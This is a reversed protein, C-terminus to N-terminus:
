ATEANSGGVAMDEPTAIGQSCRCNPEDGPEIEDGSDDFGPPVIFPENIGVVQGNLAIHKPREFGDDEGIWVRQEDQPLFGLEQAQRWTEVQGANAARAGETRAILEAREILLETGRAIIASTSEGAERMDNLVGLQDSRLGILQQIEKALLAPSEGSEIADSVMEAIAERTSADIETVLKAANAEAWDIVRQNKIDFRMSLAAGRSELNLAAGVLRKFLGPKSARVVAAGASEMTAAYAAPMQLRIHESATEYAKNVLQAAGSKDRAKIHQALRKIDVSAGAAKWANRVLRKVRPVSREGAFSVAQTDPHAVRAAAKM